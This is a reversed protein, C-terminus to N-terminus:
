KVRMFATQCLCQFKIKYISFFPSGKSREYSISWLILIPKVSTMWSLVNRISIWCHKYLESPFVGMQWRSEDSQLQFNRLTLTIPGQLSGSGSLVLSRWMSFFHAKFSFIVPRSFLTTPTFICKLRNTKSIKATIQARKSSAANGDLQKAAENSNKDNTHIM